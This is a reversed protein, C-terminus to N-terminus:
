AVSRRRRAKLALGALGLVGVGLAATQSPEPAPTAVLSLNDVNGQAIFTSGLGSTPATAVVDVSLTQGLDAAFSNSAVSFLFATSPAGAATVGVTQSGLVTNGAMLNFTLNPSVLDDRTLVNGSFVYVTNAALSAAHTALSPTGVSNGDLTQTVTVTTPLGGTGDNTVNMWMDQTGGDPDPATIHNASLAQVGVPNGQTTSSTYGAPAGIAANTTSPNEFGGNVLLQTQAQAPHAAALGLAALTALSLTLARALANTHRSAQM